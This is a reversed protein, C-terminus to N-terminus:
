ESKGFRRKRKSYEEIAKDLELETFEPWLCPTFYFESYALQWPLFNSTRIEGSTRIMLDPDPIDATDLYSSMIEETLDEKQVKDLIVDDIMKKCARFIEDRGGYNLAICVCLGTKDKTVAELEEIQKVIDVALPARDGIVRFRINKKKYRRLHSKLYKRMLNMLGDVEDQPRNWNETSFAYATLYKVGIKNAYDTIDSLVQSGKRHGENRSLGKEKAWRGNGDMIVAIHTPIKNIEM